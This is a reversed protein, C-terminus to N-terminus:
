ELATFQSFINLSLLQKKNFIGSSLVENFVRSLSIKSVINTFMQLRTFNKSCKIVSKNNVNYGIIYNNILSYIMDNFIIPDIIRDDNLNEDIVLLLNEHVFQNVYIKDKIALNIINTIGNKFINETDLPLLYKILWMRRTIHREICSDTEFFEKYMNFIKKKSEETFVDINDKVQNECIDILSSHLLFSYLDDDKIFNIAKNIDQINISYTHFMTYDYHVNNKILEIKEESLNILKNILNSYREPASDNEDILLLQQERRSHAMSVESHLFAVLNYLQDMTMGDINESLLDLIYNTINPKAFTPNNLLTTLFNDM